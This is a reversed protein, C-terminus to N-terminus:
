PATVAPKAPRSGVGPQAVRAILFDRFQRAMPTLRVGRQQILCISQALAPDKLPLRCLTGRGFEERVSSELLAGVGAGAAVLRKVGEVSRLSIRELRTVGRRDLEQFLHTWNVAAFSGILPWPTLDSWRVRRRGALECSPAVFLVIPDEYLPEVELDDPHNMQPGVAFEYSTDALTEWIHQAPVIQLDVRAKPFARQFEGIVPPLVYAGPTSTAVIQVPGSSGSQLSAVLHELGRLQAIVAAAGHAVEAGVPTLRLRRGRQEALPLGVKREAARLLKSITPQDLHLHAGIEAQTHGEALGVLIQLETITFLM